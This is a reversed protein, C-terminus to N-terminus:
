ERPWNPPPIEHAHGLISVAYCHAPREGFHVEYAIQHWHSLFLKVAWRKARAHIHAPPLKGHSYHKYAETAKGIRKAALVAEAQQALEGADNRAQEMEKKQKWLKGYFDKPNNHVKVFSEGIKWCLTKLKANWPRKQGKGWTVTPDLGAFRWIHGATPAKEIEIHAELGAAIVPGIGVISKSWQGIKSQDTYRGLVKVLSRELRETNERLWLIVQHPENSEGLARVQNASAKRFEQLTYYHDVIFRAEAQSLLLSADKVDKALKMMPELLVTDSM